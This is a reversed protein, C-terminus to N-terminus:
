AMMGPSEFYNGGAEAQTGEGVSEPGPAGDMAGKAIPPICVTLWGYLGSKSTHNGQRNRTGWEFLFGGFGAALVASKGNDQSERREGSFPNGV